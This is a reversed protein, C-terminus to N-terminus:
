SINLIYFYINVKHSIKSFERECVNIYFRISVSEPVWSSLERTLGAGERYYM